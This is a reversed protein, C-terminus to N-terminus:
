EAKKTTKRRKPKVEEAIGKAILSRCIGDDLYDLEDGDKINDNPIRDAKLIRIKM